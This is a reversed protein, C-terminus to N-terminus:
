STCKRRRLEDTMMTHGKRKKEKQSRTDRERAEKVIHNTFASYERYYYYFYAPDVIIEFV